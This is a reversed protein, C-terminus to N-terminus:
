RHRRPKKARADRAAKLQALLNCVMWGVVGIAAGGFIVVVVVSPKVKQFKYDDSLLVGLLILGVVCALLIFYTVIVGKVGLKHRIIVFWRIPFFMRALYDQREIHNMEGFTLRARQRDAAREEGMTHELTVKEPRGCVPCSMLDGVSKGQPDLKGQKCRSCLFVRAVTPSQQGGGAPNSTSDSV